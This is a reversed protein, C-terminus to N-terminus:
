GGGPSAPCTPHGWGDRPSPPAQQVASHPHSVSQEGKPGAQGQSPDSLQEGQGLLRRLRVRGRQVGCLALRTAQTGATRLTVPHSECATHPLRSAEAGSRCRGHPQLAPQQSPPPRVASPRGDEAVPPLHKLCGPGTCMRPGMLGIRVWGSRDRCTKCLSTTVACPAEAWPSHRPSPQPPPSEEPLRPGPPPPPPPGKKTAPASRPPALLPPSQLWTPGDLDWPKQCCLTDTGPAHCQQGSGTPHALPRM